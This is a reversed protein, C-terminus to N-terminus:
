VSLKEYQKMVREAVLGADYQKALEVGAAACTHWLRENEVLEVFAQVIAEPDKPPVLIGAPPVIEAASGVDTAVIPTGCAAAELLVAPFGESVSSLLLIKSRNLLESVTSRDIYGLFIVRDAINLKHAKQVLQNKLVGEGAIQLTFESHTKVFHAFAELAYEYGKQWRLGGIMAIQNKREYGRNNVDSLDVSNAVYLLKYEPLFSRLLPEMSKSVYMVCDCRALLIRLLRSNKIRLIDTGHLHVILRAKWLYKAILGNLIPIPTHVHVIDPRFRRIAPLSKFLFVLYGVLKIALPRIIRWGQESSIWADPYRYARVEAYCPLPRVIKGCERTIILTKLPINTVLHYETLGAGPSEITSVAQTIHCVRLSVSM